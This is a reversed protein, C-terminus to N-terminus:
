AKILAPKWVRIGHYAGFLFSAYLVHSLVYNGLFPIGALIADALGGISTSYFAPTTYFGVVWMAANTIIFFLGIAVISAAGITLANQKERITWGIMTTLVLAGYVAWMTNHAEYFLDTLGMAAMPVILSLWRNSLTAGAFLAMASIATFNPAHPIFRTVAAILVASIVFIM